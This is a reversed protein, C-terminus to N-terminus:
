GQPMLGDFRRLSISAPAVLARALESAQRLIFARAELRLQGRRIARELALVGRQRLPEERLAGLLAQASFPVGRLHRTGADFRATGPVRPHALPASSPLRRPM